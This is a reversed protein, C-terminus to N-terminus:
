KLARKVMIQHALASAHKAHIATSEQDAWIWKSSHWLVEIVRPHSGLVRSLQGTVCGVSSADSPPCALLYVDYHNVVFAAGNFICQMLRVMYAGNVSVSLECFFLICLTLHTIISTLDLM